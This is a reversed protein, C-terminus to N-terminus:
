KKQWVSIMQVIDNREQITSFFVTITGRKETVIDLTNNVEKEYELTPFTVVEHSSIKKGDVLLVEKYLGAKARYLVERAGMEVALLATAHLVIAVFLSFDRFYLVGLMALALTIVLIYLKTKSRDLVVLCEGAKKSFLIFRVPLTVLLLFAVAYSTIHVITLIDM